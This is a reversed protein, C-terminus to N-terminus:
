YDNSKFDNNNMSILNFYKTSEIGKVFKAIFISFYCVFQILENKDTM